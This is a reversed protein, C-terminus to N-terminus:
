LKLRATPLRLSCLSTPTRRGQHLLQECYTPVRDMAYKRANSQVSSEASSSKEPVRFIVAIPSCLARSADSALGSQPPTISQDRVEIGQLLGTFSNQPGFPSM